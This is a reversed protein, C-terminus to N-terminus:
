GPPGGLVPRLADLVRAVHAEREGVPAAQLLAAHAAEPGAAHWILWAAVREAALGGCATAVPGHAEFATDAVRVGAAVVWPKSAADTAVAADGLLGLRALLLTGAGVGAIRQRVPDLQLRDLLVGDAAIARTTLGGGFLVADAANAFALPQQADVTLGHMSTIRPAPAALEAKWGAPAHRNLWGWPVLADLEDFGDFAVIAIRM